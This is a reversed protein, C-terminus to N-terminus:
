APNDLAGNMAVLGREFLNDVAVRNELQAGGAPFYENGRVHLIKRNVQHHGSLGASGAGVLEGVFVNAISTRRSARLGQHFAAPHESQHAATQVYAAVINALDRGVHEAMTDDQIEVGVGVSLRGFGQEGGDDFADGGQGDLSLQGNFVSGSISLV